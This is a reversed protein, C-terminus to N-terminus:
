PNYVITLKPRQSATAYDNSHFILTDSDDAADPELLMIGHNTTPSNIWEQVMLEELDITVLTSTTDVFSHYINAPVSSWNVTCADWSATNRYVDIYLISGTSVSTNLELRASIVHVGTPILATDFKIYTRFEGMTSSNYVSLATSGCYNTGPSDESVMTDESGTYTDLGYQLVVTVPTSSPVPTPWNGVLVDGSDTCGAAILGTILIISFFVFIKTKM